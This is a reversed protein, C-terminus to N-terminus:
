ITEACVACIVVSAYKCHLSMFVRLIICSKVGRWTHHCFPMSPQNGRIVEKAKMSILNTMAYLCLNEMKCVFLFFWTLWLLESNVHFNKFFSWKIGYLCVNKNKSPFIFFECALIRSKILSLLLLWNGFWEISNPLCSDNNM